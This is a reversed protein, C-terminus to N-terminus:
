NGLVAEGAGADVCGCVGEEVASFVGSGDIYWVVGGPGRVGGTDCAAAFGEDAEASRDAKDATRQCQQM